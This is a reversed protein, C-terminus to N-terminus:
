AGNVERKGTLMEEWLRTFDPLTKATTAINTVRLGPRRLGMLAAFTAMRHDHYTEMRIDAGAVAADAPFGPLKVTPDIRISDASASAWVGCRRLETELAVLRDTEHGRLHGIGRLESPGSCHAALAAMTPVLEGEQSMDRTFGPGPAGTSELWLTGCHDTEALLRVRAGYATLLERWADGPQTTGVPWHPIAIKGGCIAVAALFPGANSLDPEIQVTVPRVGEGDIRVEMDGGTHATLQVQLGHRRLCQWTMELHPASPIPGCAQISLQRGTATLAAAFLAASSLFQSSARADVRLQSPLSTLSLPGTVTFPFTGEGRKVTAGVGTLFDFIETLPRALAQPDATFTVPANTLAALPPLFRMVTGALGCEITTDTAARAPSTTAPVADEVLEPPSFCASLPLPSRVSVTTGDVELDAGLARLGSIMLDTDRARLVGYLRSEGQALAALVLERNTISKSGPLELRCDLDGSPVPAIWDTPTM